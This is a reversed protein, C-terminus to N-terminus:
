APAMEGRDSLPLVILAAAIALWVSIAMMVWAIL